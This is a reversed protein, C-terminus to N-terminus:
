MLKGPGDQAQVADDYKKELKKVFAQCFRDAVLRRRHERKCNAISAMAMEFTAKRM